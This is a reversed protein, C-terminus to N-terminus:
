GGKVVAGNGKTKEKMKQKKSKTNGSVKKKEGDKNKENTSKTATKRATTSVESFDDDCLISLFSYRNRFM